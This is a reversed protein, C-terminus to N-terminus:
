YGFLLWHIFMGFCVWMPTSIVLMDMLFTKIKETM